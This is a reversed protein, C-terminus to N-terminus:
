LDAGCSPHPELDGREIWEEVAQLLTSPNGAPPDFLRAFPPAPEIPQGGAASFHEGRLAVVPAFEDVRDLLDSSGFMGSHLDARADRRAVSFSRGARSRSIM